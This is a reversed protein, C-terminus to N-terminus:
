SILFLNHSIESLRTQFEDLELKSLYDNCDKVTTRPQKLRAYHLDASPMWNHNEKNFLLKLITNLYIQLYYKLKFKLVMLLEAWKRNEIMGDEKIYFFKEEMSDLILNVSNKDSNLNYIYDFLLKHKKEAMPANSYENILNFLEEESSPLFALEKVYTLRESLHNEVNPNIMIIPINLLIATIASTSNYHLYVNADMMENLISGGQKVSVNELEKTYDTWFDKNECPHPRLIIEFSSFQHSLKPIIHQWYDFIELDLEVGYQLKQRDTDNINESFANSTMRKSFELGNMHNAYGCSTGILIKKKLGQRNKRNRGMIMIEDIISHGSIISKSKIHPYINYVSEYHKKGWFFIIDTLDISEKSYRLRVGAEGVSPVLGEVDLSAIKHGYYKLKEQIFTEGPVISKLFVVGPMNRFRSMNNFFAQKGGLIVRWGRSVAECALLIGGGM